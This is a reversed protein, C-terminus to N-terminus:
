GSSIDGKILVGPRTCYSLSNAQSELTIGKANPMPFQRAYRPLGQTNVTENYDAPAFRTRWLGPVGTPFFQCEDPDVFATDGVAGRYNEFVVGGYVFQSFAVGGRLQQAETQNLYTERTEKAGVLKDFFNDGAFANVQIRSVAFGGLSNLIARVVATCTSRILGASATPSLEFSVTAPADVTFHDFLDYLTSGDANLILGKLAGIRQYELTPDISNTVHEQLRENVRGMITQLQDQQGFARVNQIEDAYIADDIQYHPIRLERATRKNKEITHGPGGRPTPDLLTLTGQKEEVMITTTTVGGEDWDIVMGARGPVYPIHNIADTLQILGFADGTFVNLM